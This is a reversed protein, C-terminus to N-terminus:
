QQRPLPTHPAPGSSPATQLAAWAQLSRRDQPPCGGRVLLLLSPEVPGPPWLSEVGDKRWMRGTGVGGCWSLLPTSPSPSGVALLGICEALEGLAPHSHGPLRKCAAGVQSPQGRAQTIDAARQECLEKGLLTCCLRNTIAQKDKYSTQCTGLPPSVVPWLLPDALPWPAFCPPYGMAHWSGEGEPVLAVRSPWWFCSQLSAPAPERRLQHLGRGPTGATTFLPSGRGQPALDM